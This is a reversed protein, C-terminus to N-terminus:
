RPRRKFDELLQAKETATLASIFRSFEVVAMGKWAAMRQFQEAKRGRMEGGAGVFAAAVEPAPSGGSADSRNRHESLQREITHRSSEATPREAPPCKVKVESQPGSRANTGGGERRSPKISTLVLPPTRLPAVQRSSGRRQRKAESSSVSPPPLPPERRPGVEMNVVEENRHAYVVGEGQLLSAVQRQQRARAAPPVYEADEGPAAEEWCGQEGERLVGEESGGAKRKADRGSSRREESCAGNAEEGVHSTARPCTEGRTDGAGAAAVYPGELEQSTDCEKPEVAKCESKGELGGKTDQEYGRGEVHGRHRSPSPPRTGEVQQRRALAEAELLKALEALGHAGEEGEVKMSWRASPGATGQKELAGESSGGPVATRKRALPPRAPLAVQRTITLLREEHGEIIDSTFVKHSLDKLLNGIGFLEGQHQKSGLEELSGASLLRYVVVRRQQGYRFSRDQAQMDFAPNWHPDFIVVRNAGVLNLGQGGARTSILFIQKSPSSNFDDALAQRAAMPTAGDLRAFCYGRRVLFRDLIDLMKVSYSFLLVKDGDWAWVRLLKELARMKGCHAADSRGWFSEDPEMGGVLAAEGGLALRAFAADKEHKAPPDRPSAKILELHNSVQQLKTLCPLVLCFPCRDCPRGGMDAHLYAWIPGSEDAVHCCGSRVRPGGCNVSYSFLLVKDGDWAWVRLLKELARMKGCHAADSRGWFSEDPEMGGVLAAEGGLALRAFAADKEHKAPPDRPSAKILELHNSVQQLKTLCPLVLCFPCRDCPRGGMDAHLYAWIPGSEDAVHCCGSRVRPGGCSCPEDKLALLRFDPSRLVRRYVAKQLPAMACFVVNDEKGHSLLHGMTAGKTRRVMHRALVEVLRAKRENAQQVFHAPANIRQGMKLPSDYYDRFQARSGLCGPAAWDFVNFLEGYRNHMVTGSLGYRRMTVLRSCARYLQSQHSKLRHVEDVVVCHWAVSCLQSESVRCTDYSTIVVELHGSLLRRMVADRSAGHFLGVRFTGWSEFEREWNHLVSTPAVVLVAKGVSENDDYADTKGWTRGAPARPPPRARAPDLLLDVDRSGTKHFVASLFAITQITKGLGQKQNSDQLQAPPAQPSATAHIPQHM